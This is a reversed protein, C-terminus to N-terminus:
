NKYLIKIKLRKSIELNAILWEASPRTQFQFDTNHFCLICTKVLLINEIKAQSTFYASWHQGGGGGSGGGGGGEAWLYVIEQIGGSQSALLLLVVCYLWSVETLSVVVIDKNRSLSFYIITKM